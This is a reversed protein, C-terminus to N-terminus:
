INIRQLVQQLGAVAVKQVEDVSYDEFDDWAYFTDDGVVQQQLLVIEM